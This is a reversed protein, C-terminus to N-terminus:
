KHELWIDYVLVTQWIDDVLEVPMINRQASKLCTYNAVTLTEWNFQQEFTHVLASLAAGGDTATDYFNFQIEAKEIKNNKGGMIEDATSGMFYFVGYPAVVNQPARTFYLGGPLAIKIAEDAEYFSYIGTCLELIM